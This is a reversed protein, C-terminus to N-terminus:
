PLMALQPFDVLKPKYLIKWCKTVKGPSGATSGHTETIQQWFEQFADIEWWPEWSLAPKVSGETSFLRRGQWTHQLPNLADQSWRDQIPWPWYTHVARTSAARHQGLVHWTYACHALIDGPCLGVAWLHRCVAAGTSGLYLSLAWEWGPTFTSM